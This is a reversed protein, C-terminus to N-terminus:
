KTVTAPGMGNRLLNGRGTPWLVCSSSSGPVTFVDIGHDFTQVLIELQGDGDLDGATPAAPAGNGNGNSGPDPLAIDHLLAGDAGLIVLFGSDLVDPAGYTSFIM